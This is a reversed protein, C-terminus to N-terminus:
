DPLPTTASPCGSARSVSERWTSAVGVIEAHGYANFRNVHTTHLEATQRDPDSTAIRDGFSKPCRMRAEARSRADYGTWRKWFARGYHVTARLTENRVWAARRDEKRPQGNKRILLSPM